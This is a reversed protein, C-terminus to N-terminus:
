GTAAKLAAGDDATLRLRYGVASAALALSVLGLAWRFDILAPLDSGRLRLSLNLVLAALAIGLSFTVQQLLSALATAASRQDPEVDAFALTNTATFNMSRSLGAMFLLMWVLPRGTEPGTFALAALVAAGMAGNLVLVDRFAFRHLIPTTGPKMALNGAMYILVMTGAETPGLGWVQQFMLPLLFPTANIAMRAVAGSTASAVAFTRLRLPELNILPAPTTLARWLAAGGSITALILLAAWSAIGSEPRGALDLGGVLAALATATLLLGPVDLRRAKGAAPSRDIWVMALAAAVLGLPLNILFIWRWSTHEAIWGGLVPGLVPAILAPWTLLAIARVVHRKEISSLVLLRGVPSMMAAAGGQLIRAALFVELTQAVACLLSAGCFTLVACVFVRRGGFRDAAWSSAPILAALAAAYATLSLSLQNAAVGFSEGLAPLATLVVTADLMEMFLAGAVLLAGLRARGRFGIDQVIERTM